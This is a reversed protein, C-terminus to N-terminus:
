GQESPAHGPRFGTAEKHLNSCFGKPDVDTIGHKAFVETAKAVCIDFDGPSGWPIGAKTLWWRRLRATARADGPTVERGAVM